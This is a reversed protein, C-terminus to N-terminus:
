YVDLDHSYVVAGSYHNKIQDLLDEESAGWNLIHTLILLDPKAAEALKGLDEASIHHARHYRQWDETRNEELWEDNMVESILIDAGTAYDLLAPCDATDGSIVIVRDPTTFRYGYAERIGGHCVRFAEVAVNDDQYVLGNEFFETAIVQWGFESVPQTGEIRIRIDEAYAELINDTLTKLGQPGFANLPDARDVAWPTLILDAYGLTHDNHLHTLFAHHLNSARLAEIGHNQRAAEAQRVVGTGFDVLYPTGNVVIALAPGAAEPAPNPTGTGLMVIKTIGSSQYEGSCAPSSILGIVATMVFLVFKM